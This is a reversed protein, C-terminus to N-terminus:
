LRTAREFTARSDIIPARTRSTPGGVRIGPSASRQPQSTKWSM